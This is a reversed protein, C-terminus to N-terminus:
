YIIVVRGHGGDNDGAVTVGVGSVWNSDSTATTNTAGASGANNGWGANKGTSASTLNDM